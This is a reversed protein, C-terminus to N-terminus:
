KKAPPPGEISAPDIKLGTPFERVWKRLQDPPRFEEPRIKLDRVALEQIDSLKFEPAPLLEDHLSGADCVKKM